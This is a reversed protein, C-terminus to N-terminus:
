QIVDKNKDFIYLRYYLFDKKQFVYIGLFDYNTKLSMLNFVCVYVNYIYIYIYIYIYM